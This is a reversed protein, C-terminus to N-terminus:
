EKEDGGKQGVKKLVRERDRLSPTERTSLEGLPDSRLGAALCILHTRSHMIVHRIPTSLCDNNLLDGWLYTPCFMVDWMSRFTPLCTGRDVRHDVGM